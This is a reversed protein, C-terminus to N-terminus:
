QSINAPFMTVTSGLSNAVFVEGTRADVALSSPGAGVHVDAM